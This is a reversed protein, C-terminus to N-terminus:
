AEEAADAVVDEAAEVAAKAAHKGTKIHTKIEAVKEKALEVKEKAMEGVHHATEKVKEAGIKAGERLDVRTEKGSKPAFLIGALAGILLGTTLGAIANNRARRQYTGNLADRIEQIM